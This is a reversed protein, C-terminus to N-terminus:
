FLLNEKFGGMKILFEKKIVKYYLYNTVKKAGFTNLHDPALWDKNSNIITNTIDKNNLNYVTKISKNKFTVQYEFPLSNRKSNSAPFEILVIKINNADCLSIIKSLNHNSYDNKPFKPNKYNTLDAITKESRWQGLVTTANRHEKSIMIKLMDIALWQFNLLPPNVLNDKISPEYFFTTEPNKLATTNLYGRGIASSLGIIIMKPKSNNKLYHELLLLSNSIHSGAVAMNYTKIGKKTIFDADFGDLAMSNGFVLVDFNQNKFNSIDYSKRFNHNFLLLVMVYLINLLILLGFFWFCKKIFKSM